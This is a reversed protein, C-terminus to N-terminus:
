SVPMPWILWAVQGVCGGLQHQVDRDLRHVVPLRDLLPDGM